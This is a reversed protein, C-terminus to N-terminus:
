ALALTNGNMEMLCKGQGLLVQVFFLHYDLYRKMPGIVHLVLCCEQQIMEM